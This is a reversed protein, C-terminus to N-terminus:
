EAQRSFFGNRQPGPTIPRTIVILTISFQFLNEIAKSGTLKRVSIFSEEARQEIREQDVIRKQHQGIEARIHVALIRYILCKLVLLAPYAHGNQIRRM